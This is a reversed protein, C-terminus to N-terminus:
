LLVLDGLVNPRIEERLARRSVVDVKCHLIDELFQGVGVLDYLTAGKKFNVLVDLDSADTAEDRAYSGFIGEIEAKYDREVQASLERLQELIQDKSM